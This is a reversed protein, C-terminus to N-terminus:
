KSFARDEWAYTSAGAEEIENAVLSKFTSQIAWWRDSSPSTKPCPRRAFSKPKAPEDAANESGLEKGKESRRRRKAPKEVESSEPKEKPETEKDEKPETEKDQEDPEEREAKRKASAKAKAKPKRTAKPKPSPKSKVKSKPLAKPSM